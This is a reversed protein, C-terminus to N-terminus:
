VYRLRTLQESMIRLLCAADRWPCAIHRRCSKALPGNRRNIQLKISVRPEQAAHRNSAQLIDESSCLLTDNKHYERHRTDLVFTRARVGTGTETEKLSGRTKRVDAHTIPHVCHIEQRVGVSFM